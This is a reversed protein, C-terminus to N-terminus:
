SQTTLFTCPIHARRWEPGSTHCHSLIAPEGTHQISSGLHLTSGQGRRRERKKRSGEEGQWTVKRGWDTASSYLPTSMVANYPKPKYSGFLPQIYGRQHIPFKPHMDLKLESFSEAICTRIETTLSCCNQATPQRCLDARLKRGCCYSQKIGFGHGLGLGHGLGRGHRLGRGAWAWAGHRLGFAV